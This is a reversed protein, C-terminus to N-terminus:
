CKTTLDTHQAQYRARRLVGNMSEQANSTSHGHDPVGKQLWKYKFVQEGQKENLHYLYKAAAFNECRLEKLRSFFMERTSSKQIYWLQEDTIKPRPFQKQKSIALRTNKIIHFFCRCSHCKSFQNHFAPVGKDRDSFIVSDENNLYQDLGAESCKTAFYSCNWM